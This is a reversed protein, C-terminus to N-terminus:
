VDGWHVVFMSVVRIEAYDFVQVGSDTLLDKRKMENQSTFGKELRLHLTAFSNQMIKTDIHKQSLKFVLPSINFEFLKKKLCLSKSLAQAFSLGLIKCWHQAPFFQLKATSKKFFDSFLCFLNEKWSTKHWCYDAKYWVDIHHVRNGM